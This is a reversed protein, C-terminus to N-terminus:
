KITYVIPTSCVEVEYGKEFANSAVKKMINLSGNVDANLLRGERSKFLGRKIRKGVYEDHKEISENDMFSCKSTYSEETLVVKIGNLKAKYSLMTIFKNFPIGVFNQNNAKGINVEQKWEKNYGIILQSINNSVLHNTIYHSAKHMCDKVKNNRINSISKIRKSSKVNNILKSQLYTKRKNYYQNISKLPKGNIILPKIINFTIAALNNIGLDIACYRNNDNLLDKEKVEYIIEVVIINGKPIIRVQQVNTVKTKIKIKSKFLKIFGNNLEIKSITQNTYTLIFRGDKKLYKPIRIQKDYFGKLKLKLLKFFSSFNRDVMLITQQSVQAPLARYDVNNEKTFKNILEYKNLYKKNNFYHQRIEYLSANYLNKSLFCLKDLEKFLPNKCKIIHQEVLKM